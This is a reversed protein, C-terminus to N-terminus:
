AASPRDTSLPGEPDLYECALDQVARALVNPEEQELPHKRLRSRGETWHDLREVLKTGRVLERVSARGGTHELLLRVRMRRIAARLAYDSPKAEWSANIESDITMSRNTFNASGITMFRDDVIMLKSHIYVFLQDAGHDAETAAVNYVGLRHGNPQAEKVLTELMAAQSLGVTLEEKLKEPKHPLVVVIDLAPRSRDQMRAILAERMACSTLYQTEMYIFREASGIANVLLNRMEHIGRRGELEPMTRSLAFTATPMPLTCPVDIEESADPLILANADLEEETANKWREVFLDVLSRVPAGTVCVQVEHYPKYIEPSRAIRLPNAAIHASDDWREQCIDQSGFFAIRGDIIAVKQHHSGGLPATSDTRFHFRDSAQIDFVLSQLVERELAFVFSHDWALVRVELEPRERCLRDLFHLMTLEKPDLVEPADPGRLLAVDSDFQWGLLLISRKASSAAEYFARYYDRGDILLASRTKPHTRWTSKSDLISVGSQTTCSERRPRAVFFRTSASM